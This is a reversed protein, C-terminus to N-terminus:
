AVKKGCIEDLYAQLKAVNWDLKEAMMPLRALGLRKIYAQVQERSCDFGDERPDWPVGQKKRLKHLISASSMQAVELLDRGRRMTELQKEAEKLVRQIRQVYIQLTGLQRVVGTDIEIEEPGEPDMMGMLANEMAAARRLRWQQDVILQVKEREMPNAPKLQDFIEQSFADYDQKKERPLLVTRGTLGHKMANLSSRKQGEETRPGTSHAANARNAALQAESIESM